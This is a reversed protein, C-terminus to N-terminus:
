MKLRRAREIALKTDLFVPTKPSNERRDDQVNMVIAPADLPTKLSPREEEM